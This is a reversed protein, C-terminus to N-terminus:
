GVRTRTMTVRHPQCCLVRRLRVRLSGGTMTRAFDTLSHLIQSNQGSNQRFDSDYCLGWAALRLGREGWGERFSGRMFFCRLGRGVRAAAM